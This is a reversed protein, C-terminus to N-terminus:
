TNVYICIPLATKEFMVHTGTSIVIGVTTERTPSQQSTIQLSRSVRDSVTTENLVTTVNTVHNIELVSNELESSTKLSM